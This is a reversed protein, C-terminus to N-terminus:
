EGSNNILDCIDKADLVEDRSFANANGALYESWAAACGASRQRM